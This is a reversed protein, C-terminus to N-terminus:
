VGSNETEKNLNMEYTIILTEVPFIFILLSPRYECSYYPGDSMLIYNVPVCLSSIFKLHTVKYKIM